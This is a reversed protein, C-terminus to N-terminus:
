DRQQVVVYTLALLAVQAFLADIRFELNGALLGVVLMLLSVVLLWIQPRLIQIFMARSITLNQCFRKFIDKLVLAIRLSIGCDVTALLITLSFLFQMVSHRFFIHPNALPINLGKITGSLLQWNGKGFYQYQAYVFFGLMAILMLALAVICLNLLFKILREFKVSRVDGM